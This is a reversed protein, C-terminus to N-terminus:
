KLLGHGIIGHNKNEAEYLLFVRRASYCVMLDEQHIELGMCSVRCGRGGWVCLYGIHDAM